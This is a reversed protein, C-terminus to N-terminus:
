GHKGNENRVVTYILDYDKPSLFVGKLNLRDTKLFAGTKQDIDWVEELYFHGENPYGSVFSKNGYKGGIITGDKLKFQLWVGNTNEIFYFGLASHYHWASVINLRILWNYVWKYIFPLTFPMILTYFVLMLWSILLNLAGQNLYQFFLILLWFLLIFNIFSYCIAELLQEKLPRKLQPYLHNVVAISIAGPLVVIVFAIMYELTLNPM